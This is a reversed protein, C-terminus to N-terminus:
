GTAACTWAVTMGLGGPLGTADLRGSGDPGVSVNVQGNTLPYTVDDVVLTTGTLDAAPYDGPGRYELIRGSMVVSHGDLDSLPPLPFVRQASHETGAAYSACNAPPTAGAEVPPYTILSGSATVPGTLRVQACLALHGVARSAHCAPQGAPASGASWSPLTGATTGGPRPGCGTALVCVLVAMAALRSRAAFRTPETTPVPRSRGPRFVPHALVPM